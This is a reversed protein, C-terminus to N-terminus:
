AFVMVDGDAGLGDCGGAIIALHDADGLCCGLQFDPDAGYVTPQGVSEDGAFLDSGACRPLDAEGFFHVVQEDVRCGDAPEGCQFGGKCIANRALSEHLTYLAAFELGDVDPGSPSFAQTEM